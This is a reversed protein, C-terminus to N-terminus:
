AAVDGLIARRLRTSRSTITTVLAFLAVGALIDIFYHYRLYLCALPISFVIPALVWGMRRAHHWAGWWLILSMCTHLSPFCDRPIRTKDVVQAKIWGMYYVDLNVDFKTTFMPGVAPVLTYLVYGIALALCTAFAVLRFAGPSDRMYLTGLVLPFLPVYFIYCAALWESLPESVIRECALVPSHGFFIAHDIHDLTADQDGFLGRGIVPSMFHYAFSLLLLPAWDRLSSIAGPLGRRLMDRPDLHGHEKLHSGTSVWVLFIPALFLLLTYIVRQAVLLASMVVGGEGATLGQWAGSVGAMVLLAVLVFVLFVHHRRAQSEAGVPWPTRRYRVYLKLDMVFIFTLIMELRPVTSVALEFSTAFALRVACYALFVLVVWEVPRVSERSTAKNM